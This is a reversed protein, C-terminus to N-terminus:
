SRPSTSAHRPGAAGRHFTATRTLGVAVAAGLVLTLLLPRVAPAEAPQLLVLGATVNFSTHFALAPMLSHPALHVLWTYVFSTVTIQVAFLWVPVLRQVTGDILFLPLHWATWLVGVVLTAAVPGMSTELRPLLYGRWGLEEGLPGGLVLVYAVVIPVAWWPPWEIPTAGGLARDLAVAVAALVTPVAVAVVTAGVAGRIRVLRGLARRVAPWGGARALLVVAAVAPGFTGAIQAVEGVPGDAALAIAWAGWSVGFALAVFRALGVRGHGTPATTATTAATVAGTATPTM